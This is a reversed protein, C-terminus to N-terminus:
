ASRLMSGFQRALGLIGMGLQFYDSPGLERLPTGDAEERSAIVWAMLGGLLAGLVVGALIVQGKSGSQM